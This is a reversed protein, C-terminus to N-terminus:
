AVGHLVSFLEAESVPVRYRGNFTTMQGIRAPLVFMIRGGEAKKDYRMANVLAKPDRTSHQPLGLSGILTNQRQLDEDRWLGKQVALSGAYNMGIAVAEGHLRRPYPSCIEEAHGLTHGYNLIARLNEEREDKQVIESKIQCARSIVHTLTHEDLSLITTANTELYEFLEHDYIVGYKIVEAMGNRVERHPLTSLVAPDIYVRQPQHFAGLLNKGEPLDVATKGGVSSDVQAMLTTPVQIYPIGRMYIAAVLGAVDGVVGGGLAIVASKRDFGHKLMLRTLAEVTQLRKSEEGAPFDMLTAELGEDQLGDVLRTGLLRRVHSDTIV